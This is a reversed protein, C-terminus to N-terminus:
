GNLPSILEFREEITMTFACGESPPQTLFLVRSFDLAIRIRGIQYYTRQILTPGHHQLLSRIRFQSNIRVASSSPRALENWRVCPMTRLFRIVKLTILLPNVYESPM